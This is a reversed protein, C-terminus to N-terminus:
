RSGKVVMPRGPLVFAAPLKEKRTEFRIELVCNRTIVRSGRGTYLGTMVADAPTRTVRRTLPLPWRPSTRRYPVTVGAITFAFTSKWSCLATLGTPLESAVSFNTVAKEVTVLFAVLVEERKLRTM